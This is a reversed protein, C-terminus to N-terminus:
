QQYEEPIEYPQFRPNGTNLRNVFDVWRYFIPESLQRITQRFFQGDDRGRFAGGLAFGLMHLLQEYDDRTMELTVTDDVERYTM